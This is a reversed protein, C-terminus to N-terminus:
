LLSLGTHTGVSEPGLGMDRPTVLALGTDAGPPAVVIWRSGNGYPLDVLQRFGLANVYFDLAKVQDHVCVTASHIATIMARYEERAGRLGTSALATVPPSPSLDRGADPPTAGPPPTPTGIPSAFRSRATM